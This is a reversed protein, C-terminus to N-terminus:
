EYVEQLGRLIIGVAFLSFVMASGGYSVLPFTIGKTPMLGIVVAIHILSQYLLIFAMGAVLLKKFRDEILLVGKMVVLFFWIVLFLILFAGPFGLEEAIIAYVFDTHAEPLFFLKQTSNGLGKGFFGGSSVATLSQILQYGVDKEVAWPDLFSLLRGKRYGFLVMSIAIPAVFAAVSLLHKLQAGGVLYLSFVVFVLLMTTGFDPEIVILGAIVGMIVSAPLFGNVFDHLRSEKKDLYHAMYLVMTFKALESPQFQFGPLLIWRRAGNIKPMLLVVLLLVITLAFLPLLYKRYWELPITYALTFAVIGVAINVSHRILFYWQSKGDHMAVISGTAYIFLLGTLLLVVTITMLATRPERLNVM